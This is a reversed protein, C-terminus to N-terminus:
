KNDPAEKLRLGRVFKGVVLALEEEKREESKCRKMRNRTPVLDGVLDVYAEATTSIALSEAALEQNVIAFFPRLEPDRGLKALFLNRGTQIRCDKFRDELQTALVLLILDKFKMLKEQEFAAVIQDFQEYDNLAKTILEKISVVGQYRRRFGGGVWRALVLANFQEIFAALHGGFTFPAVFVGPGVEEGINSM